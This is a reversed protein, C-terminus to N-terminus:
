NGVRTGIGIINEIFVVLRSAALRAVGAPVRIVDGPEVPVDPQEGRQIRELDLVFVGKRGEQNPRILEISGTDSVWAPGGAAAVAGLVGLDPYIEYSGPSKVYGEVLVHGREPVVIVDGPRAPLNLYAGDGDSRASALDIVIQDARRRDLTAAVPLAGDDLGPAAALSSEPILHIRPAATETMGGALAIMDLITDTESAVTYFGPNQVAGIVGVRRGRYEQVFLFVPPDYMVSAELRARIDERLESETRGAAPLAGILPLSITGDGSVRATRAELEPLGSVSVELLDGPGIAFDSVPGDQTREQWLSTLRELDGPARRDIPPGSQPPGGACGTIVICILLVFPGQM